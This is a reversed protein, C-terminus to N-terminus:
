IELKEKLSLRTSDVSMLLKIIIVKDKISYFLLFFVYIFDEGEYILCLAFAINFM